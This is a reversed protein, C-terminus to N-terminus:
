EYYEPSHKQSLSHPKDHKYCNDSLEAGTSQADAGLGTLTLAAIAALWVATRRM